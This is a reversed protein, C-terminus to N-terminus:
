SPDELTKSTVTSVRMTIYSQTNRRGSQPNKVANCASYDHFLLVSIRDSALTKQLERASRDSFVQIKEGELSVASENSVVKEVAMGQALPSQSILIM